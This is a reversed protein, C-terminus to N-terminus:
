RDAMFMPFWFLYFWWVSDGLFKGATFAWAQRFRLLRPWSVKVPPDPPDSHMLDLVATSLKPLEAPRRAVPLRFPPRAPGALRPAPFATRCGCAPAPCPPSRPAVIPGIDSGAKSVGTALARRRKPCREAVTKAAAPFNGWEGPGPVI